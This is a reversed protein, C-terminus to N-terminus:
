VILPLFSCARGHRRAIGKAELVQVDEAQHARATVGATVLGDEAVRRQQLRPRADRAECRELPLQAAAFAPRFALGREVNFRPRAVSNLFESVHRPTTGIHGPM